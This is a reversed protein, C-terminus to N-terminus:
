HTGNTLARRLWSEIGAIHVAAWSRALDPDRNVIAQYIARHEGLTRELAHPETM